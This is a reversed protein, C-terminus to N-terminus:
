DWGSKDQDTFVSRYAAPEFRRHIPPLLWERNARKDFLSVIKAGMAPVTVFRLAITELALAPQGLWDTESARAVPCM